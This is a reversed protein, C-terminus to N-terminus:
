LGEGKGRVVYRRRPIIAVDELVIETVVLSGKM